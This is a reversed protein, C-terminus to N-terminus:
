DCPTEGKNDVSENETTQSPPIPVQGFCPSHEHNGDKDCGGVCYPIWLEGEGGCESCIDPPFGDWDDMEDTFGGCSWCTVCGTEEDCCYCRKCITHGASEFLHRLASQEYQAKREALTSM